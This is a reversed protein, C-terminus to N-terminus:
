ITKNEPMVKKRFAPQVPNVNFQKGYKDIRKRVKENETDSLFGNVRLFIRCEAAKDFTKQYKDM